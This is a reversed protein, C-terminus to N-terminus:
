FPVALSAKRRAEKHVEQAFEAPSQTLVDGYFNMTSGHQAGRRSQLARELDHLNRQNMVYENRGTNNLVMSLGPPLVGGQDRLIPKPDVLGGTDYHNHRKHFNLASVPSGYRGKIYNLGWNAQGAATSEVPGHLSTMKQFLGRASSSPNAANPNWSSERQILDSLASWQQGTHWGFRKAVDRVQDVVSGSPEADGGENDGSSLGIKSKAWELMSDFAQKALGISADLIYEAHPFKDTIWKTIKKGLAKFPALPDFWGGGGDDDGEPIGGMHKLPDVPKGGSWTEFHLHPGTSNGTNGSLAITQGKSVDDGAAAKAKQLHGYYTNRNGPHNLLVGIGTRGTVINWGTRAVTGALAARVPTGTPVAWDVGSHHGGWRPGFKSTVPGNVPKVLGGSAYGELDGHENIHSLLGPHLREFRRRSSKRIVFEDAHVVGAPQFKGGPGTWGGTAYENIWGPEPIGPINVGPVKNLANILGDNFVDQIVFKIPKAAIGKLRDWQKQINEVATKFRSKLNEMKDGFWDIVPKIGNHYVDSMLGSMSSWKDGIWTFVPSLVANWLWFAIDALYDWAPKLINQWAWVMRDVMSQWHNGIWSFVPSLVANWLWFAIDALYDWAPKLVNQWAWVMRDVMSQWHNGIWSFVPSLVANWLWFAIDALYDWAPKLINQWAWVMRDVMSQWHNGIWSFVPSLVANWLWFAIDALYDWAPKLVNQWAWVMRDVMSQWHNGIWSFVPSLVNNWLWQAVFAVAHLVPKWVTEWNFQIALVVYQWKDAIWSFVPSLINEWLWTAVAAVADWVPKLIYEWAAQMTTSMVQWYTWIATFVVFVVADWLWQLVTAVADWVPKLVNEWAAQIFGVTANWADAIWSTVPQIVSEWLWSFASGIGDVTTGIGDSIATFAEGLWQWAAVIWDVVPSIVSEWLWTFADGMWTIVPQVVTEWLWTLATGLAETFTAWLKQGIETQTFFWTLGAVLAAIGSIVLGVPNAKMVANLAGFSIKVSDIASKVSDIASKVGLVGLFTTIFTGVALTLPIIWDRNQIIWKGIDMLAGVVNSAIPLFTNQFWNALGAVADAIIPEMSKAWDEVPELAEMAWNLFAKGAEYLPGLLSAGIRGLSAITNKWAGLFTDGSEQAAGGVGTEMAAAFDEFSVKGESVMDSVEAATVNYHDALLDLIPIQRELMQNVIQGDIKGKAAAKGWILGMDNLDTGAVTAADGVLTLVRELDEGPQIGAAVMTAALSAAEGMGFATGKVANLANDMIAEVEEGSHGLGKLKARAEEIDQLRQFGKALATAVVGAGVAVTGAAGVKLAKGLGSIVKDGIRKGPDAAGVGKELPKVFGRGIASQLGSFTPTVLVQANGIVSIQIM